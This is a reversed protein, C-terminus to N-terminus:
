CSWVRPLALERGALASRLRDLLAGLADQVARGSDGIFRMVLLGPMLSVGARVAAAALWGRVPELWRAADEAVYLCTALARGGNLIAPRRLAADIDGALSFADAWVLRGNRHVRWSDHIFGDTVREGRATRGFVLSECALLRAAPALEAVLRRDLRGRDFLITPQPLWSLMAGAGVRLRTAIRGPLGRSRYIKEAAQTTVLAEAGAELAVDWALDDGDTVGGATNVLVAEPCGPTKPFLVRACGSQYVDRAYSRERRRAFGLEVRGRARCLAPATATVPGTM